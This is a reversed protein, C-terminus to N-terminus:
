VMDKPLDVIFFRNIWESDSKHIKLSEYANKWEKSLEYFGDIAKNFSSSYEKLSNKLSIYNQNYKTLFSKLFLYGVLLTTEDYNSSDLYYDDKEFINKFQIISQFYENIIVNKDGIKDVQSQLKERLEDIEYIKDGKFLINIKDIMENRRKNKMLWVFYDKYSYSLILKSAKLKKNIHFNLYNSIKKLSKSKQVKSLIENTNKINEIEFISIKDQSFLDYIKKLLSDMGYCQKIIIKIDGNEDEYEFISQRLNIVVINNLIDEKNITDQKDKPITSIIKKLYDKNRESLKRIDDKKHSKFDNFVFVIKKNETFLWKILDIELNFFNRNKLENFYLILDLHNNLDTMDQEMKEIASKIIKVSYDSEFGPTDFIRIPYNPHIYSKIIHTESEKAEKKHIFQNIFTSKGVGAQGCILINFTSLQSNIENNSIEHYYNM